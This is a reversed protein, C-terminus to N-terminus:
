RDQVLFWFCYDHGFFSCGGGEKLVGGFGEVKAVFEDVKELAEIM